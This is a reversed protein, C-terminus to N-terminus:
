GIRPLLRGTRKMYAAYKGGFKGVLMREESGIRLYLFAMALVNPVAIVANASILSAAALFLFISSYMPHRVRRYPGSTVLAHRKQLVLDPSWQRGLAHHSWALLAISAAALAAGLWRLWEPLAVTFATITQPYGAYLVAGGVFVPSAVLRLAL